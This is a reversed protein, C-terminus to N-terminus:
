LIAKPKGTSGSTFYISCPSDPDSKFASKIDHDSVLEDLCIVNASGSIPKLKEVHKRSTVFWGPSVQDSMVQLRHDPFTPDLPVFVADAKLVGLIGTIVQLPDDTFLGVMSGTSVNHELLFNALRNSERELEAYTVRLGAREFAPQAGFREAMGSFMEQVSQHVMHIQTTKLT